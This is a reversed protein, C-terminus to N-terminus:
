KMMDTDEPLLPRVSSVAIAATTANHLFASVGPTLLGLLGGTLFISNWFLSTGFGVSIRRLAARSIRRALLLGAIDGSVLVVDAIEKAMDAGENMAIGVHAASLAPSDNVGDGIMAVKYGQKKLSNIFDSKEGPLMHARYEDVGARAAIAAATHEGDGTLMILRKVGDNRLAQMIAPANDRLEDEILIIGALEGGIALYLLSRGKQAEEKITKQQAPTVPISEDELIFHESGILVRQGHWNSAIGHAVIFEVSTHEERHKLDEADSARVVALGVPHPFHEELCAALRLVSTRKRGGFPIVDVVVPSAKTLTGTKDFVFVDAQAVAEMFKGGKILVGCGAAERMATFINLPTALRIACSYDVLLVSGARTPDGTAAYVIGSLLFNYPVIADAIREYRAQVSAKVSESEEIARLIAKVRTNGGVRTAAVVLEGEELVTGAYVSSGAKRHVPLPEGTMSAQNIMGDGELVTGDIPLASGARVIVHDGTQINAFPIQIDIGDKRIWVKDIKLSLSETLSARSKKRTWDALFEGLAFFFTISSLSRFDRQLLCVLLVAGDLVELNLRLRLLTGIAKLIYPVSRLVAVAFVFARPYFFSRIKGPVPNRARVPALSRAQAASVAQTILVSGTRAAIRIDAGPFATSLADTIASDAMCVRLPRLRLRGPVSHAVYYCRMIDQLGPRTNKYVVKVLRGRSADPHRAPM